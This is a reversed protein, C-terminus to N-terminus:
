TDQNSKKDPCGKGTILFKALVDAGIFLLFANLGDGTHFYDSHLNLGRPLYMLEGPGVEISENESTTIVEQGTQIYVICPVQTHFEINVLDSELDKYFISSENNFLVAKTDKLGFLDNPIKLINDVCYRALTRQRNM